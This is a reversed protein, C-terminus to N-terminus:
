EYKKKQWFLKKYIGYFERAMIHNNKYAEKYNYPEKESKWEERKIPIIQYMPTGMPIVGKFGKKIYFPFQGITTHNFKDTDVIGTVTRFPLEFNNFPHTMIVSWGKPTKINYQNIWIMELPHYIEKDFKINASERVRCVEPGSLWSFRIDNDDTADIYLDCWTHQIYGATMADFFPMCLKINHNKARGEETLEMIKHSFNPLKKYWDPIYKKATKPEEVLLETLETTPIFKIKKM